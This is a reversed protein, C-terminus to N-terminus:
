RAYARLQRSSPRLNSNGPWSVNVRLSVTRHSAWLPRPLARRLAGDRITIRTRFECGAGVPTFRRALRESGYSIRVTVRGSCVGPQAPYAAALHGRISWRYPARRDRRPQPRVTLMSSARVRVRGALPVPGGAAAPEDDGLNSTTGLGLQGRHNRGWCRLVGSATTACTSLAGASAATVTDGLPVDGAASPAEDDGIRNINGYGLQGFSAAGWCRLGGTTLVACTHDDGATIAVASAGLPVDGASAPIEDDGITTSNGYGLAGYVGYGWCRLRGTSLLACTHTVGTAIAVANGGVPVDGAASAPEDDGIS